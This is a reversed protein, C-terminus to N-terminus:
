AVQVTGVAAVQRLEVIGLVVERSQDVEKPRQLRRSSHGGARLDRYGTQPPTRERADRVGLPNSLPHPWFPTPSVRSSAFSNCPIWRRSRKSSRQTSGNSSPSRALLSAPAEGHSACACPALTRATSM